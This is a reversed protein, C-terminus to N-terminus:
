IVKPTKFYDEEKHCALKFITEKSLCKKAKDERLFNETRIPHFSPLVEDVNLEDLVKFDEFIDNLQKSFKDIEENTLNIKSIEAVHKVVKEDIM